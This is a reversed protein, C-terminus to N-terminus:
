KTGTKKLAQAASIYRVRGKEWIPLPRGTKRHQEVVGRVAEKLALEAKQQLTRRPKM